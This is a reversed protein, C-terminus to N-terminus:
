VTGELEERMEAGVRFVRALVFLILALLLGGYSLGDSGHHVNPKYPAADFWTVLPTAVIAVAQIALALWGMNRLRDANVPVFPDSHAVSDVIQRLQRLFFFGLVVVAAAAVMILAIWPVTEAGIGQEALRAGVEKQRVFLTVLALPLAIVGLICFGMAVTLAVRTTGLLPDAAVQSAMAKLKEGIM